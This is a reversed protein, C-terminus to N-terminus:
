ANELVGSTLLDDIGKYGNDWCAEFTRYKQYLCTILSRLHHCVADNTLKDSDFAVIVKELKLERLIPIVGPWNSVGPVALVVRGLKLSAIDAKLPGETIWLDGGTSVQGAVHVPAGSSCGANFGRSSLWRYRGGETRDCRIQLGVLRGRTDRVPVAIGAPGALQWYGAELYFGPVGALKIGKTQLMTALERRGNTSLTRYGLREIEADTLGRRQLNERHTESLKLESLL